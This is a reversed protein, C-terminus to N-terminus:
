IKSNCRRCERHERRMLWGPSKYVYWTSVYIDIPMSKTWTRLLTVTTNVAFVEVLVRGGSVTVVVDVADTVDVDVTTGGSTEVVNLKEVVIETV